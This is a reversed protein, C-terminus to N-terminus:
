RLRERLSSRGMRGGGVMVGGHMQHYMRELEERTYGKHGHKHLFETWSNGVGGVMVGEGCGGEGYGLARAVSGVTQAIPHPVASLGTSLLKNERIFNHATKLGSLIKNGFDALGSLFNGGRVDEVDKYSVFPSQRADLIDRSSIVGINVLAQGLAPITFTGEEVVVIYFSTNLTVAQLNTATIQVQLQYQGNKGPADLSDLGIDLAFDCCIVSGRTGFSNQTIVAGSPLAGTPYVPGGSWQEWDLCCHNKKSMTFLQSMSASALLGNKNMFQISLNSIQLFTDTNSPSAYLDQNRQRCFLYIRRPISSLQINNSTMITPTMPPVNFFDTPYRQINFYPYTIPMNPPIIQTEQPTIYNFLLLPNSGTTYQFSTPGNPQGGFVFSITSIPNTGNNDDHSWFRNAAQNLFTINVDFANVNFFASDNGKGFYLPPLIIPECPAMDVISTLTTGAVTQVPNAIVVFPFGGRPTVGEDGADGYTALPNRITGFLNSYSVSQDPYAPCMSYDGNKLKEDNNYCMLAHLIDAINISVSQNNITCTFTDIGSQLPFARPADRGSQLLAQGVPPVGTMTLRIPSYLYSRRDVMIGGSPPPASFALSSQSVSTTTWAKWTTQSGGKLIAYDRSNTLITRPDRVEVPRLPQYSLSM